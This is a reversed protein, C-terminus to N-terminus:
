KQLLNLITSMSEKLFAMESKLQSIEERLNVEVKAIEKKLEERLKANQTKVLKKKKSSRKLCLLTDSLLQSPGSLSLQCFLIFYEEEIINGNFQGVLKQQNTTLGKTGDISVGSLNLNRVVSFLM